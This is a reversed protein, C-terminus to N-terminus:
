AGPAGRGQQKLWGQHLRGIVAIADDASDLCQPIRIDEPSALPTESDLMSHGAWDVLGRWMKGVLILPVNDLPRV